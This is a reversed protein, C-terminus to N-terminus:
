ANSVSARSSTVGLAATVPRVYRKNFGVCIPERREKEASLWEAETCLYVTDEKIEVVKRTVTTGSFTQAKVLDGTKM